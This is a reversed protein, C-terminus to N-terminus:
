EEKESQIEEQIDDSRFELLELISNFLLTANNFFLALESKKFTIKDKLLFSSDYIKNVFRNINFIKKKIDSDLEKYIDHLSNLDIHYSYIVIKNYIKNIIIHFGKKQKDSLKLVGINKIYESCKFSINQFFILQEYEKRSDHNYKALIDDKDLNEEIDSLEELESPFIISDLPKKSVKLKKVKEVIQELEEEKPRVSKPM